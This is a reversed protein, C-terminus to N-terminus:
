MSRLITNLERLYADPQGSARSYHLHGTVSVTMAALFNVNTLHGSTAWDPQPTVPGDENMADGQGSHAVDVGRAEQSGSEGYRHSSSSASSKM